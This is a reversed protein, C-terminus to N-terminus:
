VQVYIEVDIDLKSLYQEMLPKVEKWDLGGLGCGLKPFAISKINFLKYGNAIAELGDRIYIIRSREKWHYKTPFLIISKNSGHVFMPRGPLLERTYCVNKYTQFMASYRKKFELALGKGMVGVCNVPNVLVACKSDFINGKIYKIM